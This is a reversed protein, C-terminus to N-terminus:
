GNNRYRQFFLGLPSSCNRGPTTCSKRAVAHIYPSCFHPNGKRDRACSAEQCLFSQGCRTPSHAQSVVLISMPRQYRSARRRATPSGVPSTPPWATTYAAVPLYRKTRAHGAPWGDDGIATAAPRHGSEVPLQAPVDAVGIGNAACTSRSFVDITTLKHMAFGARHKRLVSMSLAVTRHKSAAASRAPLQSRSPEQLLERHHPESQLKRQRPRYLRRHSQLSRGDAIRACRHQIRSARQQWEPGSIDKM